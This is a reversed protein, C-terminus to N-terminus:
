ARQVTIEGESLLKPGYRKLLLRFLFPSAFMTLMAMLVLASFGADDIVGMQRALAAIVLEVDGKGNVGAGVVLGEELSKRSLLAGLLTGGMTGLTAIAAFLAGLWWHEALYELRTSYGVWIFFMPVFFGFTFTHVSEALQHEEWPKHVAKGMLIHRVLAGGALAGILASLGLAEAAIALLLTILLAATFHTAHSKEAVALAIIRPALVQRFALFILAFVVVNAFVGGLSEFGNKAQIAALLLAIVTLQLVDAITATALITQALRSGLLNLEELMDVSFTAASVSLSVGIVASAAEAFGFQRAAVFGASLPFLTNLLSMRFSVPINRAFQRLSIKLGSFFFMLVIGIQALFDLIRADAETYWLTKLPELGILIGVLLYAIARPLKLLRFLEQAAFALAVLLVLLLLAAM